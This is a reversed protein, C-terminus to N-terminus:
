SGRQYNSNKEDRDEEYDCADLFDTNDSLDDWLFNIFDELREILMKTVVRIALPYNVIPFGSNKLERKIRKGMEQYLKSQYDVM